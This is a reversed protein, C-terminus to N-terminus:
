ANIVVIAIGNGEMVVAMLIIEENCFFKRSEIKNLKQDLMDRFPMKFHYPIIANIGAVSLLIFFQEPSNRFFLVPDITREIGPTSGDKM